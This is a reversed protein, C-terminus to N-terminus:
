DHDLDKGGDDFHAAKPTRITQTINEELVHGEFSVNSASAYRLDVIAQGTLYFAVIVGIIEVTKSFLTVYAAVIVGVATAPLANALLFLVFVSATHFVILSAFATAAMFFKKSALHNVDEMKKQLERPTNPPASGEQLFAAATKGINAISKWM